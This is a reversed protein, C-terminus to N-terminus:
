AFAFREMPRGVSIPSGVTPHGHRTGAPSMKRESHRSSAPMSDATYLTGSVSSLLRRDDPSWDIKSRDEPIGVDPGLSFAGTGDANAVILQRDFRAAPDNKAFAAFRTGDRSFSVQDLGTFPLDLPRADSGDPEMVVIQGGVDVAIEGNSAVGFPPPLQPRPPVQSGIMIAGAILILLVLGVLLVFAPRRGFARRAGVSLQTQMAPELLRALWRQRPRMSGTRAAVSPALHDPARLPAVDEMWRALDRELGNSTNM